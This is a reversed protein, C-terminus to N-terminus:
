SEDIIIKLSQVVNDFTWIIELKEEDSMHRINNKMEKDLEKMNRIDHICKHFLNTTYNSSKDQKYDRWKCKTEDKYIRNKNIM